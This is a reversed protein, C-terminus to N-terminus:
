LMVMEDFQDKRRLGVCLHSGSRELPNQVVGDEELVAARRGTAEGLSSGEEEECDGVALVLVRRSEGRNLYTAEKVTSSSM